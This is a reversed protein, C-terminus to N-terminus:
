SVAVSRSAGLRGTQINTMTPMPALRPLSAPQPAQWLPAPRDIVNQATASTAALIAVVTLLSASARLYFIM